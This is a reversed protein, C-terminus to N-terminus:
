GWQGLAWFNFTGAMWRMGLQPHDARYEIVFEDEGGHVCANLREEVAGTAGRQAVPDHLVLQRYRKRWNDGVRENQDVMLAPINLMKLRAAVTLGGQGAGLILM